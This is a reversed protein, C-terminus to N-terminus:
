FMDAALRSQAERKRKEATQTFSYYDDGAIIIHDIFKIRMTECGSKILNTVSIDAMSPNLNGSPHNHAIAIATADRLLATKLIQRVDMSVETIGGTTLRLTDIERMATNFLVLYCQEVAKDRMYPLLHQFLKETSDLVPHQPAQARERRRGLECAALITVAKAPGLYRYATLEDITRRALRALSNENDALVRKMMDVASEGPAGSGILIALLEATSLAEPGLRALRERPRDDAAWEHIAKM